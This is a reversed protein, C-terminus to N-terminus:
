SACAPRTRSIACRCAIAVGNRPPGIRAPSRGYIGGAMLYLKKGQTQVLDRYYDELQNWAGNNANLSQPVTNTLLFTSANARETNTREGSRVMHGRTYGSRRYDAPTPSHMNEPVTPDGRFRPSREAEGLDSAELTWGEFRVGRLRGDYVSVYQPRNIWIMKSLQTAPGSVGLALHPSAQAREPTSRWRVNDGPQGHRAITRRAQAEIAEHQSRQSRSIWTVSSRGRGQGIPDAGHQSPRLTAPRAGARAGAGLLLASLVLGLLRSRVCLLLALAM